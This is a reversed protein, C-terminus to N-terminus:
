VVGKGTISAYGAGDSEGQDPNSANSIGIATVWGSPAITKAFADRRSSVQPAIADITPEDIKPSKV